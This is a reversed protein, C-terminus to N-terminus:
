AGMLVGEGVGAGVQLGCRGDEDEEGEGEELLYDCSWKEMTSYIQTMTYITLM